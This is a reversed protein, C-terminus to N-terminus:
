LSVGGATKLVDNRFFIGHGTTFSEYIAVDSGQRVAFCRYLVGLGGIRMFEVCLPDRSTEVSLEDTSVNISVGKYIITGAANRYKCKPELM